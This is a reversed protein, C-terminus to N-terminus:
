ENMAGCHPCHEKDKMRTGCKGCAYPRYAHRYYTWVAFVLYAVWLVYGVYIHTTLSFVLYNIACVALTGAVYLLANGFPLMKFVVDFVAIAVILIAWVSILFLSLFMPTSFPNLTPFFYFQQWEGPCFMQISAYLTASLAVLLCLLSPYFSPIDRFHVMRVDKNKLKLGVYITAVCALFILFGLLHVNSFTYIFQSIPDDPVVETLLEQEHIWGFSAREDAVQLWVSDITDTPIIRKEGVVIHELRYVAFTDTPFDAVAEEPQQSVLVVSDGTVVFNYNDLGEAGKPSEEYCATLLCLSLAIPIIRKM